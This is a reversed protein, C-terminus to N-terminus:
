KAASHTPTKATNAPVAEGIIVVEETTTIVEEGNGNNKKNAPAAKIAKHGHGKKMSCEKKQDKCDSKDKCTRCCGEGAFLALSLLGTFTFVTITKKM